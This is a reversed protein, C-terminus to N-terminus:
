LASNAAIKPRIARLAVRDCQRFLQCHANECRADDAIRNGNCINLGSDACYHWIAHQVFRPFIAPFSPNFERADIHTAILRLIGACGLPGYCRDGYPHDASFRQLIGTRHLFNHVLTDVAILSAGAAFRLPKDKGLAMLLPSLAIALVKDSVGYINRLPAVIAECLENLRDPSRADVSALQQDIWTVFDGGSIDRMFLFLSYAMQNLRGNRLPHRPLPCVGFHSPESCSATGKTYQCNHFRWYGDLKPCSPTKSLATAVDSLRVNGHEIIYGLAIADSIGQLSFIELLWEFLTATDHSKIARVIGRDRLGDRL